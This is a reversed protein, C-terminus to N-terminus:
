NVNKKKGKQGKEKKIDELVAEEESADELLLQQTGIKDYFRSNKLSQKFRWTDGAIHERLKEAHVRVQQARRERPSQNITFFYSFPEVKRKANGLHNRKLVNSEDESFE